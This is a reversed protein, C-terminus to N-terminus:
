EYYTCVADISTREHPVSAIAEADKMHGVMLGGIVIEHNPLSLMEHAKGHHLSVWCTGLNMCQAALMAFTMASACSYELEKPNWIIDKTIPKASRNCTIVVFAGAGAIFNGYCTVEMMRERMNSDLLVHFHWPQTNEVSPSLIAVSLLAEM